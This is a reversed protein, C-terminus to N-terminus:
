AVQTPAVEKASRFDGADAGTVLVEAVTVRAARGPFHEAVTAGEILGGFPGLEPVCVQEGTPRHFPYWTVSTLPYWHIVILIIIVNGPLPPVSFM